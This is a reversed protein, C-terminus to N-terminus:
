QAGGTKLPQIARAHCISALPGLDEGFCLCHADGSIQVLATSHSIKCLIAGLGLMLSLMLISQQSAMCMTMLWVISCVTSTASSSTDAVYHMKMAGIATAWLVGGPM